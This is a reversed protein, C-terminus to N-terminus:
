ARPQACKNETKRSWRQDSDDFAGRSARSCVPCTPLCYNVDFDAFLADHRASYRRGLTTMMHFENRVMGVQKLRRTFPGKLRPQLRRLGRGAPRATKSM